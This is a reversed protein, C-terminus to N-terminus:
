EPLRHSFYDDWFQRDPEPVITLIQIDDSRLRVTHGSVSLFTFKDTQHVLRGSLPTNAPRALAAPLGPAPNDKLAVYVTRPRAGGLKSSVEGYIFTGYSMAAGCLVVLAYLGTFTIRDKTVGRRVFADIALNIFIFLSGYGLLVTLLTSQLSVSTFFVAVALSKVAINLAESVRPFRLDLDTVDLTYSVFFAGGLAFYFHTTESSGVALSTFLAASLCAFFLATLNAHAFVVASWVPRPGNRNLHSLDEKLWKPTFLVARGAFLYFCALYFIFSAGALFYRGDVFEVDMFGYRALSSNLVLFGAVYLFSVAIPFLWVGLQRLRAILVLWAPDTKTDETM